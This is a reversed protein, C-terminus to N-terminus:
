DLWWAYLNGPDFLFILASIVNLGIFARQQAVTFKPKAAFFIAVFIIMWAGSFAELYAVLHFLADYLPTAHGIWNKPDDAMVQPWAGSTKQLELALLLLGLNPLLPWLSLLSMLAILGPTARKQPSRYLWCAGGIGIVLSALPLFDQWDAFDFAFFISFPRFLLFILLILAM